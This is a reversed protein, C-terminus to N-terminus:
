SILQTKKKGKRMGSGRLTAGLQFVLLACDNNCNHAAIVRWANPKALANRGKQQPAVRKTRSSALAAPWSAGMCLRIPLASATNLEKKYKM